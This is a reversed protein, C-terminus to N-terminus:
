NNLPQQTGANFCDHACKLYKIEEGSFAPNSNIANEIDYLYARNNLGGITYSVRQVTEWRQGPQVSQLKNLEANLLANSGKSNFLTTKYAPKNIISQKTNFHTVHLPEPTERYLMNCDYSVYRLNEAKKGKSVDPNIGYEKLVKFCHEAYQSLKEPEAILALAYVGHGSCSKGCFAVFSLSFVCQKLEELDYDKIDNYDLDIQMIGTLNTVTSKGNAKSEMLAAPTFCQLSAKLPKSKIKYDPESIDLKRLEIIAQLDKAIPAFLISRYTAPVGINDAHTKYLSVQKDLWSNEMEKLPNM